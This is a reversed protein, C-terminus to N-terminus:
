ENTGQIAARREVQGKRFAEVFRKADQYAKIVMPKQSQINQLNKQEEPTMAAGKQQLTKARSENSKLRETTSQMQSMARTYKEKNTPRKMKNVLQHSFDIIKQQTEKQQPSGHGAAALTTWLQRLGNEYRTKEEPTLQPINRMQEPRFMRIGPVPKKQESIPDTYNNTGEPPADVPPLEPLTDSPLASGRNETERKRKLGSPIRPTPKKHVKQVHQRLSGENAFGVDNYVCKGQYCRLRQIDELDKPLGNVNSRLEQLSSSTELLALTLNVWLFMGRKRIIRYVRRHFETIDEYLFTFLLQFDHNDKLSDQLASLRPLANGIQAYADLILDLARTQEKIALIILKVPGWIYSVMPSSNCFVELVKGYREAANIYPSLRDFNRLGQRSALQTETQAITAHVDNLSTARVLRDDEADLESRFRESSLELQRQAM